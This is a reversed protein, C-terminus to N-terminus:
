NSVCVEKLNGWDLSVGGGGGGDGAATSFQQRLFSWCWSIIVESLTLVNNLINTLFTLVFEPAM